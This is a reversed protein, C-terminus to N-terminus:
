RRACRRARCLAAVCRRPTDSVFALGSGGRAGRRQVCAGRLRWVRLLLLLRPGTHRVPRAWDMCSMMFATSAASSERVGDTPARFIGYHIDHGGGGPTLATTATCLARHAHAHSLSAHLTTNRACLPPLFRSRTRM